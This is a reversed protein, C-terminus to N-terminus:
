WIWWALWLAAVGLWAAWITGGGQFERPSPRSDNALKVVFSWAAAVVTALIAFVIM